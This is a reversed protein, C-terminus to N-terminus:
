VDAYEGMLENVIPATLEISDSEMYKGDENKTYKKVPIKYNDGMFVINNKRNTRDNRVKDVPLIFTYGDYGVGEPLLVRYYSKGNKGTFQKAAKKPFSIGIVNSM